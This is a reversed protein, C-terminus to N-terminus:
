TLLGFMRARDVAHERSGANLKTFLKKVHWKVTESSLGLETAIRKNPLGRALLRLVEDEKPTLIASAAAPVSTASPRTAGPATTSAAVLTRDIFARTVPAHAGRQAFRRILDVVDPHTDAFVRVLDGSEARSLAEILLAAPSQGALEAVLAQMALVQVTEYGRNIERALAGATALADGALNPDGNALAAYTQALAQELRLLPALRPCVPYADLVGALDLLMPTAQGPRRGAAHLRVREALSVVAFRALGRSPTLAALAELYAFSRAEDGDAAAIQALTRYAHVIGDPTTGEEIVDLRNALLARAEEGLNRQWCAAALVSAIMSTYPARRGDRAEWRAHQVRAVQEALVPRGEWLYSLGTFFDGWIRATPFRGDDPNRAQHQRAPETDGGYYAYVTQLNAHARRARSDGAGGPWLSAWQAVADIDDLFGHGAAMVLNAEGRVAPDVEPDGALAQAEALADRVTRVDMARLWAAILRLPVNGSIDEPPIRNLWDIVVGAHGQHWQSELSATVLEFADRRNGSALAHKAAREPFGHAAFWHRARVHVEHRDEERLTHEARARLYEKALPHLRFWEGDETATLLPTEAVLRQPSLAADEDGTVAECLSPHLADLLACRTVFTSLAPPLADFMSEFLQRTADDRSLSFAEIAKAPDSARELAAAALQLGLPWGETIEHLRACHDANIRDGLRASLLRISEPLDFRLDAATVRILNGQGILDITQPRAPARSGAAIQLNPPMNHLLYDFAELVGPDAVRECNDLILVTPSAAETIEALLSTM